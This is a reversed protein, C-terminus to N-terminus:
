RRNEFIRGRPIGNDGDDYEECGMEHKQNAYRCRVLEIEVFHMIHRGCALHKLRHHRRRHEIRHMRWQRLLQDRKRDTAESVHGQAPTVRAHQKSRKRNDRDIEAAQRQKRALPRRDRGGQEGKEVLHHEHLRPDRHQINKREGKPRNAIAANM